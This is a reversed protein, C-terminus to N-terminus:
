KYLRLVGALGAFRLDVFDTNTKREQFVTQGNYVGCHKLLHFAYRVQLRLRVYRKRSQM